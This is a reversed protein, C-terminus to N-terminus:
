EQNFAELFAKVEAPTILTEKEKEEGDKTTIVTSKVINTKLLEQTAVEAIIKYTYGEKQARLIDNQNDILYKKKAISVRQYETLVINSYEELKGLFSTTKTTKRAM